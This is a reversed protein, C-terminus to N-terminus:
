TLYNRMVSCTIYYNLRQLDCLQYQDWIAKSLHTDVCKLWKRLENQVLLAHSSCCTFILDHWTAIITSDSMYPTVWTDLMYVMSLSKPVSYVISALYNLHWIVIYLITCTLCWISWISLLETKVYKNTIACVVIYVM